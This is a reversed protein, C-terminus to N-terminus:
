FDGALGELKALDEFGRMRVMLEARRIAPNAISGNVKDALSLREGTDQEQLAM